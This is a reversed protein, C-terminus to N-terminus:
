EHTTHYEKIWKEQATKAWEGGKLLAAELQRKALEPRNLSQYILSRMFMAKVRLSSVLDSNVGESFLLMAQDYKGLDKLCLGKYILLDIKEDATLSLPPASTEAQEFCQLAEPSKKHYYLRRGKAILTKAFNLSPTSFLEKELETLVELAKEDEKQQVLLDAYLLRAEPESQTSLHAAAYKLYIEKKSGTSSDAIEVLARGRELAAKQSIQKYYLLDKESLSEKLSEFVEESESFALAAQSRDKHHIFRGESTKRDRMLDMGTLYWAVITQPAQPYQKIFSKLHKLAEKKGLLYDQFDYLEFSVEPLYPSDFATDLFKQRAEKLELASAGKQLKVRIQCFLVEQTQPAQNLAEEALDWAENQIHQDARKLSLDECFAEARESNIGTQCLYAEKALLEKQEEQINQYALALFYLEEGMPNQTELLEVLEKMRGMHYLCEAQKLRLGEKQYLECAREFLTAEFFHNAEKVDGYLSSCMFILIIM